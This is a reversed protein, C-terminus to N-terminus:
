LKVTQARHYSRNALPSVGDPVTPSIKPVSEVVEGFSEEFGDFPQSAQVFSGGSPQEFHVM